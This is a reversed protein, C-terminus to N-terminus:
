VLCAKNLSEDSFKASDKIYSVLMVRTVEVLREINNEALELKGAHLIKSRDNYIEKGFKFSEEINTGTLEKHIKAFRLSFRYSLESDQKPLFLMELITMCDIFRSDNRRSDSLADTFLKIMVEFRGDGAKQKVEIWLLNIGVVDDDGITLAEKGYYSPPNIFHSSKNRKGIYFSTCSMSWLKLSRNVIVAADVSPSRAIYNSNIYNMQRDLDIGIEGSHYNGPLSTMSSIRGKDDYKVDDMHFWDRIEGDTMKFIEIDGINFMPINSNLWLPFHIVTVGAQNPGVDFIM